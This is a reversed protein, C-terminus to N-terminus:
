EARAFGVTHRYLTPSIGAHRKFFRSFYFEDTFGLLSGVEKVPKATLYLERKAEIVIRQAILETLTKHFHCKVLKGLTKPSLHVMEAYHRPSHQHRYDREISDRVQRIVEPHDGVAANSPEQHAIAWLRLVQILFIKLYAVLLQHQALNDQGLEQQMQQLVSQLRADDTVAFHSREYTNHFLTGEVAVENVHRYTCFFDPHFRIVWGQGAQGTIFRHPQYPSLCLIAKAQLKYTHFDVLVTLEGSQLLIISYDNRRSVADSFLHNDVPRIDFAPSGTQQDILATRM